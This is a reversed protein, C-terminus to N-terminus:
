SKGNVERLEKIRKNLIDNILYEENGWRDIMDLYFQKEKLEDISDNKITEYYEKEIEQLSKGFM